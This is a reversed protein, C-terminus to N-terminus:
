FATIVIVQCEWEIAAVVTMQEGAMHRFVEAQFNGFKNKYPDQQVTGKELCREIMAQTIGREPHDRYLHTAVRINGKAVMDMVIAKFEQRSMRSPEPKRFPLVNSM